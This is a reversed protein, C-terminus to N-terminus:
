RPAMKKILDEVAVAELGRLRCRHGRDLSHFYHPTRVIAFIYYVSRTTLYARAWKFAYNLKAVNMHRM